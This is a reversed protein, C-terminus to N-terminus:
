KMTHIRTRYHLIIILRGYELRFSIIMFSLFQASFALSVSQADDVLLECMRESHFTFLDSGLVM